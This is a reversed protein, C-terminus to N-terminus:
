LWQSPAVVFWRPNGSGDESVDSVPTGIWLLGVSLTLAATGTAGVWTMVAAAYMLAGRPPM